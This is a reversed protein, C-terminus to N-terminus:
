LIHNKPLYDLVYGILNMVSYIFLSNLSNLTVSQNKELIAYHLVRPKFLDFTVQVWPEALRQYPAPIPQVGIRLQSVESDPRTREAVELQSLSSEQLTQTVDFGPFENAKWKARCLPCILSEKNRRCEEAWISMCHHHLKNRCGDECVTLSEEDLMGLLCIPCVHEEEEKMGPEGSPSTTTPSTLLHSNSLRSVFKSITSRSPAKIRSSRKSHYKHFLSEVEYNKLTRRWLLPETSEVQFVRLMVFMVHMCFSGRGCSCTQPGIFVRFKNDPVDGGILFSNPGIQQLLYLRARLVKNIRRQTEEPSYPSAGDPSPARRPPTIRGSQM